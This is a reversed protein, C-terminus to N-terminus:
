SSKKGNIINEECSKIKVKRDAFILIEAEKRELLVFLVDSKKVTATIFNTKIESNFKKSHFEIFFEAVSKDVTWSNASSALSENYDLESPFSYGRYVEFVEPLSDYAKKECPTMNEYIMEKTYAHKTVKPAVGKDQWVITGDRYVNVVEFGLPNATSIHTKLTDKWNEVTEHPNHIYYAEDLTDEHSACADHKCARFLTLDVPEEQSTLTEDDELAAAGYGALYGENYEEYEKGDYFNSEDPIFEGGYKYDDYGQTNGSMRAQMEEYYVRLGKEYETM